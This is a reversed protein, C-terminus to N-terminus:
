ALAMIRLCKVVTRSIYDGSQVEILPILALGILVVEGKEIIQANIGLFFKGRKSGVDNKMPFLKNRLKDTIMKSSRSMIEKRVSRSSVKFNHRKEHHRLLRRVDANDWFRLPISTDTTIRTVCQLYEEKSEFNVNAPPKETKARKIPTSDRDKKDFKTLYIAEYHRKIVFASKGIRKGCLVCERKDPDDDCLSVMDRIDSASVVKSDPVPDFIVPSDGDCDMDSEVNFECSSSM